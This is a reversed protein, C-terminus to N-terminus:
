PAAKAGVIRQEFWDTLLRKERLLPDAPEAPNPNRLYAMDSLQEEGRRLERGGESLTYSLRVRPWDAGGRVVRMSKGTPGVPLLTGALDVDLLQVRLVADQGPLRPGLARLAAALSEVAATREGPTDGADAWATAPDYSVEVTGAQAAVLAAASLLGIGAQRAIRNM